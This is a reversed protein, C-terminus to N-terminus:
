HKEPGGLREKVSYNLLNNTTQLEVVEMKLDFVQNSLKDVVKTLTTISEEMTVFRAYMVPGAAVGSMVVGLLGSFVYKILKRELPHPLNSDDDDRREM